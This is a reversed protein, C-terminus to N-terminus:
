KPDETEKENLVKLIEMGRLSLKATKAEDDFKILM